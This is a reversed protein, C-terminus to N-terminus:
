KNKLLEPCLIAATLPALSLLPLALGMLVHSAYVHLLVLGGAVAVHESSGGVFAASWPISSFNAQHGLSYFGHLSLVFWFVPNIWRLRM